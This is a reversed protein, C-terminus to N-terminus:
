FHRPLEPWSEWPLYFNWYPGRLLTGVITLAVIAAVALMFVVNQRLRARHLWVGAAEVGSKDLWPWVALLLVLVGPLLVGGVLAGNVTFGGIHVTTDTVLEQLWLFYWPAKAPNPTVLANAPEELPAPMVLALATVVLLSVSAVILIRRLLHPVSDVHDDEKLTWRGATATQGPVVGLLSYTKALSDPDEERERERSLADVSALGGDKRIRWLHYAILALAAVPLAFCHLVYFRLLANQDIVTGGLLAFRVAKGAVPAASAINTGVTIAWFALQDWPLLYGTFSFLLTILLLAIGVVWNLPRNAGTAVGPAGPPSKKYAGTLFVRVMHLFVVAVMLHAALRHVARLPGGFAVVAGLDKVTWYAREVSPVYLFMLVVGTVALIGFLAASITGLWWSYGFSFSRRTVRAPFWHLWFNRVIANSAERETRPALTWTADRLVDPLPKM